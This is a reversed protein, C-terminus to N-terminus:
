KRTPVPRTSSPAPIGDITQAEMLEVRTGDPDFLNVQRKRNIGTKTTIAHPYSARASRQELWAMAQAIDPVELCFHHEIGRQDPAPPEGFLMFELYDNSDPLRLNTFSLTESDRMAGRWTETFGLIDSYFAMSKEFECVLIGFHSMRVSLPDKSLFKGKERAAWSDPQAQVFEVDHGEPDKVSIFTTGIRARQVRDPVAVGRSALYRRMAEADDVYFAIHHLRDEKPQLGPYLEVYQQENIKIFTLALSGDPNELQYPEGYGLFDKYFARSQAVDSVYFGIHAVGIIKPRAVAKSDSSAPAPVQSRAPSAPNM